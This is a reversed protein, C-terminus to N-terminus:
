HSAQLVPAGTIVDPPLPLTDLHEFTALAPHTEGRAVDSNYVTGVSVLVADVGEAGGDRVWRWELSHSTRVVVVPM